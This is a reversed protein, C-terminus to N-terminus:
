PATERLRFRQLKGTDTHPLADVFEIARPYKYPAIESKVHDQLSKVSPPETRAEPQLVIFAKVIHGREADPIGIVACEHVAPHLLLANEVEPAAINYGSSVIMDDSRAQYWYYGDSDMMYADGTLNWGDRVYKRQREVDDLYRCGTPGRVELLGVEGVAVPVGNEDVIRAQYGPIPRGTAGPRVQDGAASIFIHLMETAGIGDIITLGTAAKWAELTAAPLTEGASVCKRLSSVDHDDMMGLMARYATPATFCITPRHDNIAQILQLPSAKELMLTSAGFRMPFLLLGGLAYTFALPPSGCFIDSADPKLVNRAFCDTIALVDRHTHMTGKARGTTGSTFAILAIDEASTDCNVFMDPKDRMMAELGDSADTNFHVVRAGVRAGNDANFLMGRECDEAVRTDTLALRVQAKEATYLIERRRLLPMTAVVVGGAKLVAFWCAALMPTNPARLLVRNGPIVGLDEVLVHAIRNATRLLDDYSWRENEYLFVTNRALGSAVAGDLLDAACNLRPPYAIDPVTTCDMEPWLERPPLNDACFGDVHGSPETM